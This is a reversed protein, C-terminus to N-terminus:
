TVKCCCLLCVQGVWQVFIKNLRCFDPLNNVVIFILLFSPDKMALPCPLLEPRELLPFPDVFLVEMLLFTAERMWDVPSRLGPLLVACLPNASRACLVASLRWCEDHVRSTEPGCGNIFSVM